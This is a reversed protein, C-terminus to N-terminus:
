AHDGGQSRQGRRESDSGLGPFGVKQFFSLVCDNFAQPNEFYASHGTDALEALFSDPVQARVARVVDPPFLADDTGVVFLVPVGTAALEEATWPRPLGTVTKITYANFSAIQGYLLALEPHDARIRPGLVREVQSLHGTAARVEDMRTKLPGVESVAALTDALVLARVRAPYACTFGAVTGGGMSQGVLAVAELRCHDLLATLDDIFASRGRRDPDTSLGFGRQDITIVQYARAFADVQHYWSAHNGGVGHALIVTPGEGHVEYYLDAGGVRLRPM